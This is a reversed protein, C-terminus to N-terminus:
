TMEASNTQVGSRGQDAPLFFVFAEVDCNQSGSTGRISVRDAMMFPVDSGTGPRWFYLVRAKPAEKHPMMRIM